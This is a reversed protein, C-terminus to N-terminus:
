AVVSLAQEFTLKFWEGRLKHAKMKQHADNEARFLDDVFKQGVITLPLPSGIQLTQLRKVTDTSAGIKYM